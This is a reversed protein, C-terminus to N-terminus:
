GVVRGIVKEVYKTADGSYHRLAEQLDGDHKDLLYRLICAGAEISIRPNHLDSEKTAIKMKVLMTGWFKWRIQTLGVAGCNSRADPKGSSEQLVMGALVVMPVHHRASSLVVCRAYHGPNAIAPYRSFLTTLAEM